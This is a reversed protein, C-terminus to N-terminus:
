EQVGVPPSNTLPEDPDLPESYYPQIQIDAINDADNFAMEYIRYYESRDASSFVVEYGDKDGKYSALWQRFHGVDMKEFGHAESLSSLEEKIIQKLKAKTIKM